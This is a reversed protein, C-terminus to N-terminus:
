WILIVTFFFGGIFTSSAGIALMFALNGITAVPFRGREEALRQKSRREEGGLLVLYYRKFLFPISLRIDTSHSSGSFAKAASLLADQQRETLSARVDSPLSDFFRRAAGTAPAQTAIAGGADPAM